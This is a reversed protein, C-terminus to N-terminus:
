NDYLHSLYSRSVLTVQIDSMVCGICPLIRTINELSCHRIIKHFFTLNENVTNLVMSTSKHCDSKIQYVDIPSCKDSM